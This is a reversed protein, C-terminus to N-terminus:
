SETQLEAALAGIAHPATWSGPVIVRELPANAFVAELTRRESAAVAALAARWPGGAGAAFRDRQADLLALARAIMTDIDVPERRLESGQGSRELLVFRRARLPGSAGPDGIENAGLALSPAVFGRSLTRLARRAQLGARARVPLRAWAAPATLRLDSYFRMRRHFRFCRGAADLLIQDDGLIGRGAALARASLSSKGTGSAGLLVLADGSREIAAAPLLVYGSRAAAVSLLPEVFYGQILSLGFSRPAGRLEIDASLPSAEPSALSIRWRVSKHGGESARRQDGQRRGFRVEVGPASGNEPTAGAGYEARFHRLVVRDGAVRLDLDPLFTYRESRM